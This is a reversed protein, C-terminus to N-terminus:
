WVKLVQRSAVLIFSESLIRTFGAATPHWQRHTRLTNINIYM